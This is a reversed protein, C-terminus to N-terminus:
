CQFWRALRFSQKATVSIKSATSIQSLRSCLYNRRLAAILPQPFQSYDNNDNKYPNHILRTLHESARTNISTCSIKSNNGLFTDNQSSKVPDDLNECSNEHM